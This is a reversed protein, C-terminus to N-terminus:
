GFFGYHLQSLCIGSAMTSTLMQDLKATYGQKSESYPTIEIPAIHFLQFLQYNLAMIHVPERSVHLPGLIM